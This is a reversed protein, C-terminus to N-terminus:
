RPQDARVYRDLLRIGFGSAGLPVTPQDENERWAM